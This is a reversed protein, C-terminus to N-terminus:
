DIEKQGWSIDSHKVTSTSTRGQTNVQTLLLHHVHPSDDLKRSTSKEHAWYISGVNCTVHKCFPSLKSLIVIFIFKIINIFLILSRSSEDRYKKGWSTYFFNLKIYIQSNIIFKNIFKNHLWTIQLAESIIEGEYETGQGRRRINENNRFLLSKVKFNLTM